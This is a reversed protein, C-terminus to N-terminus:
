NKDPAIPEPVNKPAREPQTESAAPQALAQRFELIARFREEASLKPDSLVSTCFMYLLYTDSHARNADPYKGFVDTRAAEIQGKLAADGVLRSLFTAKGELVGKLSQDDVRPPDGCQQARAIPSATLAIALVVLFIRL